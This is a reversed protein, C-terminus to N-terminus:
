DIKKNEEKNWAWGFLEKGNAELHIVLCSELLPKIEKAYFEYSRFSVFVQKEDNKVSDYEKVLETLTNKEIPDMLDADHVLFPIHLLSMNALDFTILGRYATGSGGDGKTEFTYKNITELLLHPPILHKGKVIRNTITMMANNIKNQIDTLKNSIVKDRADECKKANEKLNEFITFNNNATYLNQLELSLNTYEKLVAQSVNPIIKIEAIEDQIKGIENDLLKCTAVLNKENEKFEADLVKSLSKHFNEIKEIEEFKEGPFFKELDEYSKKFSKKGDIKEQRMTNLQAQLRAKQRKYKNLHMRLDSIQEAQMENLDLLGDNNKEALEKKKIELESIKKENNKYETKNKAMILYKYDSTKKFSSKKDDAEKAIDIQEKVTNYVGFQKLYNKIEDSQKGDKSAQLPRSSDMTDRGYVRIYKSMAGRWTLEENSLGYNKALFKNYEDISIPKKGEIKKYQRDCIVLEKYNKTNRLFSYEKGEFELTFCINHEGIKDHVVKCKQIYDEGGFVFDIIMLLTSKGISNSRNSDGMVANLGKHFKIAPRIKGDKGGTKFKDCYIEVLM